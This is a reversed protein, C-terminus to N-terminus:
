LRVEEGQFPFKMGNFTFRRRGDLLYGDHHFFLNEVVGKHGDLPGGYLQISETSM